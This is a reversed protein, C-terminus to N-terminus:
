VMFILIFVHCVPSMAGYEDGDFPTWPVKWPLLLGFYPWASPKACYLGRM